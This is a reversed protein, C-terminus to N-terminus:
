RARDRAMVGCRSPPETAGVMRSLMVYLSRMPHTVRFIAYFPWGAGFELDMM